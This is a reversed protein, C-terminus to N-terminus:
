CTISSCRAAARVTAGGSPATRANPSADTFDSCCRARSRASRQPFPTRASHAGVRAVLPRVASRQRVRQRPRAHVRNGGDPRRPSPARLTGADRSRGLEERPTDVIIESSSGPTACASTSDRAPSRICRRRPTASRSAARARRCAARIGAVLPFARRDAVRTFGGTRTGFHRRSSLSFRPTTRRWAARTAREPTATWVLGYHDGEPLLAIPGRPRSDSTRSARTRFRRGSKRSSRSRATTTGSAARDRRGRRRHRRRGSRAARAAARRRRRRSRPTRPRAASRVGGDHSPSLVVGPAGARRRARGAAPSLQRRLRACPHGARRRRAADRRLRRGALRRHAHDADRRRADRCAREMRRATGPDAAVGHSLALSRDGRLTEGAARADLVVCTSIPTPSRWRWRRASRGRVSSSSTM